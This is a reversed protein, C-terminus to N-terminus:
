DDANKDGGIVNVLQLSYSSAELLAERLSRRNLSITTDFEVHHILTADEETVAIRYKVEDLERRAFEATEIHTVGTDHERIPLPIPLSSKSRFGDAEQYEFIARCSVKFPDLSNAAIETLRSVAREGGPPRRLPDDDTSIFNLGMSRGSPENAWHVVAIVGLHRGSVVFRSAFVADFRGEEDGDFSRTRTTTLLSRFEEDCGERVRFDGHITLYVCNFRYLDLKM